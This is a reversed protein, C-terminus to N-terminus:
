PHTTPQSDGENGISRDVSVGSTVPGIVFSCNDHILEIVDQPARTPVNMKPIKVATKPHLREIVSIANGTM